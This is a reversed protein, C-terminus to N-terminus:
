STARLVEEELERVAALLAPPAPVGYGRPKDLAHFEAYASALSRDQLATGDGAGPEQREWHGSVQVADPLFRRVEEALGFVPGATQVRVDLYAGALEDVRARLEEMTGEVRLLRRGAVLQICEVKAPRGPAAEVVVVQKQHTRESFDLQLVSGSYRARVAAGNIEQPKHIHGLAAYQITAPIAQQTAAYQPGVQIKREGGGLEAGAVFFHGTLIRVADAPLAACLAGCLAQIRADYGKFWEESQALFDVVEAEHLFPLAAVAATERGDRSPVTVVGGAGPPRIRPVLHVGMSALLPALLEFLAPSDHNGTIAVVHGASDALRRLTDLVLAIADFTALARDLLDGAVIVLDVKQDKAVAVVEDFAAAFEASRDIRGLRKGAHWDATHLIRM